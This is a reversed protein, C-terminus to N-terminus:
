FYIFVIHLNNKSLSFPMLFIGPNLTTCKKSTFPFFYNFIHLKNIYANKDPRNLHLKGALHINWASSSQYLAVALQHMNRRRVITQHCQRESCKPQLTVPSLIAETWSLYHFQHTRGSSREQCSNIRNIAPAEGTLSKRQKPLTRLACSTSGRFHIISTYHILQFTACLLKRSNKLGNIQFCLSLIPREM